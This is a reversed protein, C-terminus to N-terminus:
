NKKIKFKPGNVTIWKNKKTLNKSFNFFSRYNIIYIVSRGLSTKKYLKKKYAENGIKYGNSITEKRLYRAFFIWRTLKIKKSVKIYGTFEKEFRFPVKNLWDLYHLFPIWNFGLGIQCCKLNKIKLFREFVCNKGFSTKPIKDLIKKAKPGYGAISMMPDISRFVNKLKFFYNPFFGIEAKTKKPDYIKEKKTFSYTYTPVFINGKKGIIETLIELIWKSSTKLLNKKKTNPSGLLALNSTIFLSDNKKLGLKLFAEKLDKKSFDKM